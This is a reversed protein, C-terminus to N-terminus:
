PRGAAATKSLISGYVAEVVRNVARRGPHRRKDRQNRHPFPQDPIPKGLFECLADWGEGGDWCLEILADDGGNDRFYARVAENHKEYFDIYQERRGFPRYFGYTLRQGGFLQSTRAHECVSNYWVDPTRRTTLVFKANNGFHRHLERFILPYPFDCFADDRATQAFVGSLDGSRVQKLLPRRNPGSVRYGLVELAGQLSSTGTKSLGIGFVKPHQM